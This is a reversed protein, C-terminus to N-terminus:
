TEEELEARARSLDTPSDIDATIGDEDVIWEIALGGLLERASANRHTELAALATRVSGARYLGALWQPRGEASFVYGEVPHRVAAGQGGFRTALVRVLDRPRVLDGALILVWGTTVHELGAAIGAVPGGLPPDERVWAVSPSDDLRPGVAVIPSVGGEALAEITRSLLTRGGVTLLPKALGGMRRGEGGVLLVAAVGALSPTTV